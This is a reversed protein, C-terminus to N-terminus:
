PEKTLPYDTAVTPYSGVKMEEADSFGDGDTDAKTPNTGCMLEYYNSIGDRDYDGLWGARSHRPVPILPNLFDWQVEYGDSFMDRDTDYDTPDTGIAIEEANSLEDGDFDDGPKIDEITRSTTNKYHALMRHEWFDPLGDYDRDVQNAEKKNLPDNAFADPPMQGDPNMPLLRFDPHESVIDQIDPVGNQNSDGYRGQLGLYDPLGDNNQDKFLPSQTGAYFADLGVEGASTSRIAFGNFTASEFQVFPVDAVVLLGEVWIDYHRNPYDIRYTMRLWESRRSLDDIMVSSAMWAATGDEQGALVYIEGDSKVSVFETFVQPGEPIEPPLGDLEVLIPKLYYDFWLAGTAQSLFPSSFLLWGEGTLRLVM